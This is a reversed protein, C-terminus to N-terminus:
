FTERLFLGKKPVSQGALIQDRRSPPKHIKCWRNCVFRFASDPTQHPARHRDDFLAGARMFRRDTFIADAIAGKADALREISELAHQAPNRSVDALALGQRPLRKPSAPDRM